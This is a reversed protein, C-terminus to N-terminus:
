SSQEEWTASFPQLADWLLPPSSYLLALRTDPAREGGERRIPPLSCLMQPCKWNNRTSSQLQWGKACVETPGQVTPKVSPDLHQVPNIEFSNSRPVMKGSFMDAFRLFSVSITLPQLVSVCSLNINVVVALSCSLSGCLHVSYSFLNWVVILLM